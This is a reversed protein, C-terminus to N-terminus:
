MAEGEIVEAVPIYTNRYDFREEIVARHKEPEYPTEYMKILDDFTNWIYEEPFQYEIGPYRHIFPRIGMAMAELICMPHGEVISSLLIHQKDSLFSKVFKHSENFGYTFYQFGLYPAINDIYIKVRDAQVRGIHELTVTKYKKRLQSIAHMALECGKKHNINVIWAIKDKYRKTDPIRWEDLDVGNKIFIPNVGAVKKKFIDFHSENLMFLQDVNKWEVKTVGMVRTDEFIEFSRAIVYLPKNIGVRSLVGSWASAWMCLVADAWEVKESIGGYSLKTNIHWKVEHGRSTFFKTWYPIWTNNWLSTCLIKM